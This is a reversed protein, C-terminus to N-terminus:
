SSRSGSSMRAASAKAARRLWTFRTWATTPHSEHDVRLQGQPQRTPKLSFAMVGDMGEVQGVSVTGLIGHDVTERNAFAPGDDGYTPYGAIDPLM